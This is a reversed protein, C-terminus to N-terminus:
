LLVRGARPLLPGGEKWRLPDSEGSRSGECKPKLQFAPWNRLPEVDACTIVCTIHHASLTAMTNGYRYSSEVLEPYCHDV